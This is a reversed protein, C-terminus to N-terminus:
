SDILFWSKVSIGGIGNCYEPNIRDKGKRIQLEKRQGYFSHYTNNVIYKSIQKVYLLTLITLRYGIQFVSKNIPACYQISKLRLIYNLNSSLTSLHIRKKRM